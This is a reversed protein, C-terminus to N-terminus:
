NVRYYEDHWAQFVLVDWLLYHWNRKGSVHDQWKSSIEDPNFYGDRRIRQDNLLSECWDRLPGRLWYEIPVGFGRKPREILEKPVYKYLVQRLPWKGQGDKVKMALPLQRAFEVIRHDLLPIRSELSVAMSTRDLKVLIDDPLYSITDLYTMLDTFNPFQLGHECTLMTQPEDAGQVVAAPDSWHSVLNRYLQQTTDFRLVETIKHLKDGINYQKLRDPVVAGFVNFLKGWAAPTLSELGSAIGRRFPKPMWGIRNWIENGWSYRTYGAFLEDGGDGSLSVTVHQRALQSVLYTPIQSSDSFPEDFIVPLKPIVNLADEPSIYLETHDTGLHAAVQKAYTAEDYNKETFGITFTKIARSSQAQMLAVVTSSDVGGSLFAGLPVDAAMQQKISNRLLTDLHEIADSETGQFPTALGAAVVTKVSWYQSSQIPEDHVSNLPLRIISGPLVKKISRYISHPAPIYNHRMLLALANRDIDAQWGQCVRLAKLESAFVFRKAIWGYYIPKEGLRDRVLYLQKDKRDWLAFAFMGVFHQVAADLGWHSIAALMVETDSHGRWAPAVHLNELQRRLEQHNYVEGNFAIVYRQCASMMPQHGEQTLDVISLRRHGLAIGAEPETWVDGDDPGRHLIAATMKHAMDRLTGTDLTGQTDFIGTIGCM